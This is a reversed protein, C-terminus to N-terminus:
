VKHKSSCLCCVSMIATYLSRNRMGNLEIIKKTKHGKLVDNGTNEEKPMYEQQDVLANEVEEMDREIFKIEEENFDALITRCIVIKNLVKTGSPGHCTEYYEKMDMPHAKALYRSRQLERLLLKTCCVLLILHQSDVPIGEAVDSQIQPLLLQGAHKCLDVCNRRYKRIRDRIEPADKAHGVYMLLDRLTAIHGNLDCIVRNPDNANASSDSFDFISWRSGRSWSRRKPQTPALAVVPGVSSSPVGLSIFAASPRPTRHGKNTAGASTTALQSPGDHPSLADSKRSSM